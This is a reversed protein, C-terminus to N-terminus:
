LSCFLICFYKHTFYGLYDVVPFFYTSLLFIPSGRISIILVTQKVYRLMPDWTAKWDKRMASPSWMFLSGVCWPFSYLLSYYHPFPFVENNDCCYFLSLAIPMWSVLLHPILPTGVHPIPLCKTLIINLVVLVGSLCPQTGSSFLSSFVMWEDVERVADCQSCSGGPHGQHPRPLAPEPHHALLCDDCPRGHCPSEAYM